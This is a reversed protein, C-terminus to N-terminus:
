VQQHALLVWDRFDPVTRAHIIEFDLWTTCLKLGNRREFNAM